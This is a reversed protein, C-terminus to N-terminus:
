QYYRRMEFLAGSLVAMDPQQGLVMNGANDQMLVNGSALLTTTRSKEVIGMNLYSGALLYPKHHVALLEEGVSSDSIRNTCGLINKLLFPAVDYHSTLHSILKPAKGPWRVIFPVQIQYRSYNSGHGWYMQHTDNLEEGHDSTIIVITNDMMKNQELAVLVTQVEGDIFHIANKYRYVADLGDAENSITVIRQTPRFSAPYLQPINQDGYYSHADDYFIFAFFPSHKDRTQLYSQFERTISRDRDPITAGPASSVRLHPIGYFVTQDFPPVMFSSFFVKMQYGNSILSQILASGKRQKLAANWYNEPLGYFLSFLGAQTSNGGSYHQNFSWSRRSFRMINPTLLDNLYDFRWSDIAIIVINYRNKQTKFVLSHRPYHLPSDPFLPQAFRTESYRNILVSSDKFPLIFALVNNYLPFNPTQQALINSDASVSVLFMSFSAVLCGAIASFYKFFSFIYKGSSVKKWMLFALVTEFIIVACCVAILMMLELSSLELFHMVGYQNNLMIRAMPMNLHFHFMPYVILDMILLMVALSWVIMSFIMIVFRQNFVVILPIIFFAPLCALFSFHGIYTVLHFLIVFVKGIFYDYSFYGSSYLTKSSFVIFLYRLSLLLFLCVNSLAFLALFRLSLMRATLYKKM